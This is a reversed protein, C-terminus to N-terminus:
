WCDSLSGTGTESKAGTDTIAMVACKLDSAQAGQPTATLTYNAGNGAMTIQYYGHETVRPSAGGLGTCDAQAGALTTAFANCNTLFREQAAALQLLEKRAEARRTKRMQEQYSPIAIGLLIAAVVLTIMLEILTFGRNSLMREPRKTPM